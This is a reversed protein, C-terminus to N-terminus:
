DLREAAFVPKRKEVFAMVGERFDDTTITEMVFTLERGVQEEPGNSLSWQILQKARRLAASPMAAIRSALDSASDVARGTEVVQFVYGAAHMDEASLPLNTLMIALARSMGLLRPLFFSTTSNPSLGIGTFGAQFRAGGAAVRIDCASALGLGYGIAGGEIAALVPIPARHLGLLGDHIRRAREPDVGGVAFAKLDGGACFYGGDGAVVAARVRRDRRIEEGVQALGDIIENSLANRVEPRTLRVHAVRDVLEYRVHETVQM